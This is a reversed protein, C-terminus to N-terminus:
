GLTFRANSACNQKRARFDFPNSHLESRNRSRGLLRRNTDPSVFNEIGIKRRIHQERTEKKYTSVLDRFEGAHAEQLWFLRFDWYCYVVQPM